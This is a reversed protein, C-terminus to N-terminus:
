SRKAESKGESFGFEITPLIFGSTRGGKLPFLYYPLALLPIDAIYFIIPRVVTKDDLFIKMQPVKFYYHPNPDDCSTYKGGELLLIEDSVRHIKEGYCIGADYRTVGNYITGKGHDVNYIMREGDVQQDGDHLVPSGQATVLSRDVDFRIREAELRMTGQEVHANGSLFIRNHKMDFRIRDGDYTVREAEEEEPPLDTEVALHNGTAGGAVEITRLEEDEMHFRLTDGEAHNEEREGEERDVVSRDSVAGGTVEVQRPEGEEFYLTIREGRTSGTESLLSDEVVNEMNASGTVVVRDIEEDNESFHIEIEDGRMTDGERVLVPDLELFVKHSDAEMITRGATTRVDRYDGVTSGAAIVRSREPEVTITDGTLTGAVAGLSDIEELVPSGTVVLSDRNFVARDGRIRYDDRYLDITVNGCAVGVERGPDGDLSDAIIRRTSDVVVVNGTFLVRDAEAEDRDLYFVGKDAAITRDGSTVLLGSPFLLTEAREDLIGLMGYIWTGERFVEVNRHLRLYRRTEIWTGTRAAAFIGRDPELFRVNGEIELVVEDSQLDRGRLRDGTIYVAPDDDGGSGSALPPFLALFLFAPVLLRLPFLARATM